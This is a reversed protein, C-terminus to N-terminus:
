FKYTFLIQQFPNITADIRNSSQDGVVGSIGSGDDRFFFVDVLRQYYRHSISVSSELSISLNGTLQYTYGILGHLGIFRWTLSEFGKINPLDWNTKRFDRSFSLDAGWYLSSRNWTSFERQYGVLAMFAFRHSDHDFTNGRVATDLYTYFDYGIRARLHSKKDSDPNLLYRGFLSYTAFTNKEVLSLADVGVEWRNPSKTQQAFSSASFLAGLVAMLVILLFKNFVM